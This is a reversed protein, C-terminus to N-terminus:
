RIRHFRWRRRLAFLRRAGEGMARREPARGEPEGEREQVGRDPSSPEHAAVRSPFQCGDERHDQELARRGQRLRRHLQRALRMNLATLAPEDVLKIAGDIFKAVPLHGLHPPSRGRDQDRSVAKSAPMTSIRRTPRSKRALSTSSLSYHLNMKKQLTPLDVVGLARVKDSEGPDEIGAEKMAECTRQIVRGVGTEGVFMHHAEETLMFRCTRSLPDFGSQALSELQMKGDRDTFFTFMFFSLWDPTAENFAGLMRPDDEYGSRRRLLDDAEDRGDRGFFKHLLYVMAWLHRGEEVNVQFLNRMDYLSPATKGLHRQQEVSAPETDGQVVILRRLMARYEGPVEQWAPEGLHAGFNVKRGEEQPALLVGWRYEPMRVYDFKAWGKPDVSVATRLYVLADQFGEPGMDNWWDLYGPHWRELAKLVQRDETLGVNNPIQTSYDVKQIDIMEKPERTLAFAFLSYRTALLSYFAAKRNRNAECRGRVGAAYRFGTEPRHRLSAACGEEGVANPRQFIWNQWASLRAFIKSEMTEPGGFRLNAELGTLSDPSFSPREELFMRIEDDWDIDDLAFTVLGLAQAEEADIAEGIRAQGNWMRPIPLFARQSGRSGMPWRIAASIANTSRSRPRRGTTARREGVFMYARDAALVIEALTGAFCSGPEVLAVLTRSTMDLRKLVRKWLLRIERALWHERHRDLFADYALVNETAGSSKFLIVAVDFENNRIDLIADDLERALQLPWFGAGRAIMEDITAPPAADSPACPSPLSASPGISASRYMDTIWGRGNGHAPALPELAIGAGNASRGSREAFERAREGVVTELRTSPVTEDVLRWEVARKGKVGEETTCFVDARDRRVKRKDTVRTLGGTGPLVALLPVEPLAVSASGDDVLIIHDTALALEYGGGAATGNIVCITPLGSYQSADEFANRTENTFKCFNVKHAHSSGALMRINAGACFVRNKASRLLLVRVGPHEFRLRQLADALEIDVGLDYSNLKLQYGEFLGGNEDVDMTLTAIEDAVSLKWHKYLRPETSFEIRDRGNALKREGEAM